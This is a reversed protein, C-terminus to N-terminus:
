NHEARDGTMYSRWREATAVILDSDGKEAVTSLLYLQNIHTAHYDWRALKPSSGMMSFHRLDYVTGSGTDYLPLLTILSKMGDRWLRAATELENPQERTEELMEVVDHLGMLSYMFGNLVFSGPVTPYEEYWKLTDLFKAVIGGEESPVSFLHLARIAAESYQTDNTTLWARTLVSMAHGQAMAGYWGEALEGAGPYKSRDKNFLIKM